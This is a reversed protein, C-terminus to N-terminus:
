SRANVLASDAKAVLSASAGAESVLPVIVPQSAFQFIAVVCSLVVLANVATEFIGRGTEQSQVLLSYTSPTKM